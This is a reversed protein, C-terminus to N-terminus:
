EEPAEGIRGLIHAIRSNESLDVVTDFVYADWGGARAAMVVSETDDFFLPREGRAIDLLEGVKAFFRTDSKPIGLRASYFIEDFLDKLGLDNWLYAARYPEQGTALYLDVGGCRKLQRVIRLVDHNFNSDKEFWYAVFADVSGRYGLPPLVEALVEKLDREGRVCVSMLSEGGPEPPMFFTRQLADRRIGLDQELTTDWPNRRAPKAHWGDIIVGDVDFFIKV